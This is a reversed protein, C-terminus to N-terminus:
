GKVVVEVVVPKLEGVLKQRAVWTAADLLSAKATIAALYKAEEDLPVEALVAREALLDAVLKQAVPVEDAGALTKSVAVPVADGADLSAIARAKAAEASDLPRPTYGAPFERGYQPLTAAAKSPYLTM